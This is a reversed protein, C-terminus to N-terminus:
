FLIAFHASYRAGSILNGKAINQYIVPSASLGVTFRSGFYDLGANLLVSHGGSLEVNSGEHFDSTWSEVSVGGSPMVSFSQNAFVYFLKASNMFRHGYKFDYNTNITNIRSSSELVSGWNGSRIFYNIAALYDITGTGTQIGPIWKDDSTLFHSNGTPLKIGGGIQLHHTFKNDVKKQNIVAYMAMISIDGMGDHNVKVREEEKSIFQFPIFGFVHLKESLVFRGFLETTHFKEFSALEKENAFLPPHISKFSRYGYKLGFFHKQFQPLIGFQQSGVACGCVDCSLGKTTTIILLTMMVLFSPIRIM